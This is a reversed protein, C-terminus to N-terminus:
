GEARWQTYTNLIYLRSLHIEFLTASESSCPSRIVRLIYYIASLLRWHLLTIQPGYVSSRLSATCVIQRRQRCGLAAQSKHTMQRGRGLIMQILSRKTERAPCDQAGCSRKSRWRPCRWVSCAFLPIGGFFSRKGAM